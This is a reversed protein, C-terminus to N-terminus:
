HSIDGRMQKEGASAIGEAALEQFYQTRNEYVRLAALFCPYFNRAAFGYGPGQYNRIIKVIDTTGLQNVAGAIRGPGTNYANLALPWTGLRKYDRNLHRAAAHASKVPDNREDVGRGVKLGLIRATSPMLQWIGQAGSRSRAKINFMSEVFPLRTVELPLNYEGFVEEIQPLFDKSYYIGQLFRDRQGVQARISPNVITTVTRVKKKGRGKKGHYSYKRTKVVKKSGELGLRQVYEEKAAKIAEERSDLCEKVPPEDCHPLSIVGYIKGLDSPDHLVAQDTTYESYIKTWFDVEKKLGGPVIFPSVAERGASTRELCLAACL